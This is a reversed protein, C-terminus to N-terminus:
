AERAIDPLVVGAADDGHVLRQHLLLRLPRLLDDIGDHAARDIGGLVLLLDRADQRLVAAVVQRHRDLDDLAGHGFVVHRGVPRTSRELVGLPAVAADVELGPGIRARRAEDDLRHTLRDHGAVGREQLPEVRLLDGVIEDVVREDLLCQLLM